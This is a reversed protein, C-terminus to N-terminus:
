ELPNTRLDKFRDLSEERLTKPIGCLADQSEGALRFTVASVPEKASGALVVGVYYNEKDHATFIEDGRGDGNVDTRLAHKWALSPYKSTISKAAASRQVPAPASVGLLSFIVIASEFRM